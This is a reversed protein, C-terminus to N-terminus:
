IDSNKPGSELALVRANLERISELLLPIFRSYVLGMTGDPHTETLSPWVAQVEQAVFGLDLTGTQLWQFTQPQLKLVEDVSTKFPGVNIKLEVDSTQIVSTVYVNGGVNLNQTFSGNGSADLSFSQAGATTFSITQLGTNVSIGNRSTGLSNIQTSEVTGTNLIALNSNSYLSANSLNLSAMIDITKGQTFSTLVDASLTKTNYNVMKQINSIDSQVKTLLANSSTGSIGTTINQLDVINVIYRSANTAM